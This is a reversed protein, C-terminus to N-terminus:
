IMVFVHMNIGAVGAIADLARTITEIAVHRTERPIEEKSELDCVRNILEVKIRQPEGYLAFRELSPNDRDQGRAVVMGEDSDTTEAQVLLVM